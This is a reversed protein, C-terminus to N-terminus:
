RSFYAQYAAFGPRNHFEDLAKGSPVAFPNVMFADPGHAAIEARLEPATSRHRAQPAGSPM